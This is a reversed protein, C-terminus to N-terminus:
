YLLDNTRTFCQITQFYLHMACSRSIQTTSHLFLRCVTKPNLTLVPFNIKYVCKENSKKKKKKKIRRHASYNFESHQIQSCSCFVNLDIKHRFLRYQLTLLARYKQMIHLFNKRMWHWTNSTQNCHHTLLALWYMLFFCINCVIM